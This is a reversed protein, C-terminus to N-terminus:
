PTQPPPIKTFAQRSLRVERELRDLIEPAEKLLALPRLEERILDLNLRKGQRLLVGRVDLWDRDRGAFCKHVVLDEASCTRLSGGAPLNWESSRQVAREEFPVAGLAVDVPTGDPTTLLLVRHRLALEVTGPARLPFHELWVRIFREEGGFGTFLTLDVDKTFRVEGWRQAAIGGIVCFRWDRERCFAQVRIAAAYLENM